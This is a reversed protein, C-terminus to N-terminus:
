TEEPESYIRQSLERDLLYLSSPEHGYLEFRRILDAAQVEEETQEAIFWKLFEMSRLDHATEAHTYINEISRTIFREHELAAELMDEIGHEGNASHNPKELAHLEVEEGNDILYHILRLGHDLEERAQISFWHAFGKMGEEEFRCAFDLYLYASFFEHNIQQNLLESVDNKM